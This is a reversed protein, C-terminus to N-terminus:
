FYAGLLVTAKRLLEKHNVYLPIKKDVVQWRVSVEFDCGQLFQLSFDWLPFFFKTVILKGAAEHFDSPFM